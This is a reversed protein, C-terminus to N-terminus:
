PELAKELMLALRNFWGPFLPKCRAFHRARAINFRIALETPHMQAVAAKTVPGLSGDVKLTGVARQLCRVADKPDSNVAMDFVQIAIKQPLLDLELPAWFNRYYFGKVADVMSPSDYPEGADLLAWGAWNPWYVRSIGAFTVGGKDGPLESLTLGGEVAANLVTFAIAHDFSTDPM